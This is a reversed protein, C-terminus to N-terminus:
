LVVLFFYSSFQTFFKATEFKREYKKANLIEIFMEINQYIQFVIFFAVYVQGRNYGYLVPKSWEEWHFSACYVTFVFELLSGESVPNILPM